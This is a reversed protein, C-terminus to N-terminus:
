KGGRLDLELQREDREAKRQAIFAHVEEALWASSNAGLKIPQPFHGARVWEYLTSYTIGLLDCVQQRRLIPRGFRGPAHETSM